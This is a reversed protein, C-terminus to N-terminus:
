FRTLRQCSQHWWWIVFKVQLTPNKLKHVLM